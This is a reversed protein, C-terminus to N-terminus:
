FPKVVMLFVIVAISIALFMGGRQASSV